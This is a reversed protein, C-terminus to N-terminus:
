VFDDISETVTCEIDTWATPRAISDLAVVLEAEFFHAFYDPWGDVFNM